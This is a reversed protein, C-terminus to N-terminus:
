DLFGCHKAVCYIFERHWQRGTRSSVNVAYAAGDVTHSRNWYVMEILQRRRKPYDLTELEALAAEVAEYERMDNNTLARLVLNELGRGDGGGGTMGSYSPTIQMRLLNDHQEKLAPYRRIMSKVYPWWGYRPKSM